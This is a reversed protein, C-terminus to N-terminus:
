WTPWRSVPPPRSPSASCATGPPWSSGTRARSPVSCRSATRRPPVSAPGAKGERGRGAGAELRPHVPAHRRPHLRRAQPRRRPQAGPARVHRRHARRRRLGLRRDQARVPLAGHAARRGRGEADALLGERARDARAPRVAAAAAADGRRRHRRGGRGRGRRREDDVSWGAGTRRLGTVEVQERLEVGDARLKAALGTM